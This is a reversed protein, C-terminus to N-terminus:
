EGQSIYAVLDRIDRKSLVQGFHPPMPSPLPTREVIASKKLAHVKGDLSTIRIEEPSEFRVVGAVSEGSKTTAAASAFGPAITSNPAIISELILTPNVANRLWTLDPGIEAGRGDVAHCRICGAEPKEDFVKRGAEGNGGELCERFRSVPDPSKSLREERAKLLAQLEPNDRKAAAEFLDLWIAPPLEGAEYRKFQELLLQDAAPDPHVALRAFSRQRATIRGKELVTAEEEITRQPPTESSGPASAFSTCTLSLLAVFQFRNM